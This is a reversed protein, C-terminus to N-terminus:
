RHRRARDARRQRDAAIRRWRRLDTTADELAHTAADASDRATDREKALIANDRRLEGAVQKGAAEQQVARDREAQTGSYEIQSITVAVLGVLLLLGLRVGSPTREVGRAMRARLRHVFADIQAFPSATLGRRFLGERHARSPVAADREVVVLPERWGDVDERARAPERRPDFGRREADARMRERMAQELFLNGFTGVRESGGGPETARELAV